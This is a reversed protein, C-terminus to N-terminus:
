LVSGSGQAAFSALNKSCWPFGKSFMLGLATDIRAAEEFPNSTYILKVYELTFQRLRPYGTALANDLEECEELTISLPTEQGIVIVLVLSELANQGSFAKLEQTLGGLPPFSSTDYETWMELKITRLSKMSSKKLRSLAYGQFTWEDFLRELRLDMVQLGNPVGIIQQILADEFRTRDKCERPDSHVKLQSLSELSIAELISLRDLKLVPLADSASKGPSVHLLSLTQLHRCSQIFDTPLDNIGFLSLIAIPNRQVFGNIHRKIGESTNQWSRYSVAQRNGDSFGFTFEIVKDLQDLVAFAAIRDYNDMCGIELVRIHRSLHPYAALHLHLREMPHPQVVESPLEWDRKQVLAVERFLQKQCLPAFVKGVLSLHKLSTDDAPADHSLIKVIAECIDLPLSPQM